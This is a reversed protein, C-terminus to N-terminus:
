RNRCSGESVSIASVSVPFSGAKGLKQQLSFILLERLIRCAKLALDPSNRDTQKNTKTKIMGVFIFSPGYVIQPEYKSSLLHGWSM